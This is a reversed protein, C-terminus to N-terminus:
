ELYATNRVHRDTNATMEAMTLFSQGLIVFSFKCASIHRFIYTESSLSGSQQLMPLLFPLVNNQSCNNSSNATHM